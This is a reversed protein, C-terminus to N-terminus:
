VSTELGILKSRGQNPERQDSTDGDSPEQSSSEPNPPVGTSSTKKFRLRKQVRSKFTAFKSSNKGKFTVEGSDLMQLISELIIGLERIVNRPHKTLNSFARVVDGLHEKTYGKETNQLKVVAKTLSKQTSGSSSPVSRVEDANNRKWSVDKNELGVTRRVLLIGHSDDNPIVAALVSSSLVSLIIGAGVRM